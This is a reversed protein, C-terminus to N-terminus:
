FLITCSSRIIPIRIWTLFHKILRIIFNMYYSVVHSSWQFGMCWIANSLVRGASFEHVFINTVLNRLRQTKGRLCPTSPSSRPHFVSFYACVFERYIFVIWCAGLWLCIQLLELVQQLGIANSTAEWFHSVQRQHLLQGALKQDLDQLLIAIIFRGLHWARRLGRLQQDSFCYLQCAVCGLMCSAMVMPAWRLICATLVKDSRRNSLRNGSEFSLCIVHMFWSKFYTMSNRFLAALCARGWCPIGPLPEVRWDQLGSQEKWNPKEAGWYWMHWIQCPIWEPRFVM